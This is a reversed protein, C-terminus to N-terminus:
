PIGNRRHLINFLFFPPTVQKPAKFDVTFFNSDNAITAQPTNHRLHEMSKPTFHAKVINFFSFVRRVNGFEMRHFSTNLCAVNDRNM